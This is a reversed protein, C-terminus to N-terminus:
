RISYPVMHPIPEYGCLTSVKPRPESSYQHSVAWHRCRKVKTWSENQHPQNPQHPKQPQDPFSFLGLSSFRSFHVIEFVTLVEEARSGLYEFSQFRFYNGSAKFYQLCCMRFVLIWRLTSLFAFSLLAVLIKQIRGNHLIQNFILMRVFNKIM